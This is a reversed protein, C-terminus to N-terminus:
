AIEKLQEYLKEHQISDLLLPLRAKQYFELDVSLNHIVQDLHHTNRMTGKLNNNFIILLITIILYNNFISTPPISRFFVMVHLHEPLYEVYSLYESENLGFKDRMVEMGAKKIKKMCELHENRYFSRISHWRKEKVIALMLLKKDHRDYNRRDVLIFGTDPDGDARLIRYQESKGDM